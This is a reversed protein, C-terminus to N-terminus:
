EKWLSRAFEVVEDNPFADFDIPEEVLDGNLFVVEGCYEGLSEGAWRFTIRIDKFLWSLAMIVPMPPDYDTTFKIKGGTPTYCNCANRKVGWYRKNWAYWNRNGTRKENESNLAGLFVCPPCPIIKRFDITGPGTYQSDAVPPTMQVTEMLDRIAANNGEFTLENVVNNSM